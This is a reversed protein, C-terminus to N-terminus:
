VVVLTARSPGTAPMKGIIACYGNFRGVMVQQGASIDRVECIAWVELDGIRVLVNHSEVRIVEGMHIQEPKEKFLRSFFDM